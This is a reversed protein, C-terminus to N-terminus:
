VRTYVGSGHLDFLQQQFKSHEGNGKAGKSSDSNWLRFLDTWETQGGSASGTKATTWLARNTEPNVTFRVRVRAISKCVMGLKGALM